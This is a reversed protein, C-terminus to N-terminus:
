VCNVFAVCQINYMDCFIPSVVMTEWFSETCSHKGWGTNSYVYRYVIAFIKESNYLKKKKNTDVQVANM